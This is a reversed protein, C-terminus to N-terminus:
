TKALREPISEFTIKGVHVGKEVRLLLECELHHESIKIALVNDSAEINDALKRLKDAVRRQYSKMLEEVYNEQRM